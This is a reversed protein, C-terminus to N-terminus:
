KKENILVRTQSLDEQVKLVLESPFQALSDNPISEKYLIGIAIADNISRGGVAISDLYTREIKNNFEGIMPLIVVSGKKGESFKNEKMYNITDEFNKVYVYLIRPSQFKTLEWAKYDLTIQRYSVNEMVFNIDSNNYHRGFKKGIKLSQLSPIIKKVLHVPQSILTTNLDFNGRINLPRAIGLEKLIKLRRWATQKSIGIIDNSSYVMKYSLNQAFSLARDIQSYNQFTLM